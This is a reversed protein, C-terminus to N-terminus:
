LEPEPTWRILAPRDTRSLTRGEGDVAELELRFVTEVDFPQESTDLVAAAETTTLGVAARDLGRRLTLRYGAAGDVPTWHLTDGPAASAPLDAFEIARAVIIEGVDRSGELDVGTLFSLDVWGDDGEIGAVLTYAGDPLGAQASGDM